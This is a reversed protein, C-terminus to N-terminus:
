LAVKRIKVIVESKAMSGGWAGINDSNMRGGHIGERAKQIMSPSRHGGGMYCFLASPHITETVKLRARQRAGVNDNVIERSQKRTPGIREVEVEDGDKLGLKHARASNIFVATPDYYGCMKDEMLVRNNQTANKQQWSEKGQILYFEDKKEPGSVPIFRPVPHITEYGKWWPSGFYQRAFENVYLEMRTTPTPVKAPPLYEAPVAVVYPENMLKDVSTKGTLKAAKLRRESWSRETLSSTDEMDVEVGLKEAVKRLFWPISKAEGRPAVVPNRAFVYAYVKGDKAQIGSYLIRREHMSAAPIVYDAIDTFDKPSQEDVIILELKDRCLEYIRGANTGTYPTNEATSWVARIEGKEIADIHYWPLARISPSFKGAMVPVADWPSGNYASQINQAPSWKIRDMDVNKETYIPEKPVPIKGPPDSEPWGAGLGERAIGVPPTKFRAWGGQAAFTGLLMNLADGCMYKQMDTSFKESFGNTAWLVAPAQAALEKAIAEIKKPPFPIECIEVVKEPTFAKSSEYLAQLATICAVGNVEFRKGLGLEMDGDGHEPFPATANSSAKWVMFRGTQDLFPRLDDATVLQGANTYKKLYEKNYLDNELVYKVIGLTLAADTGPRIPIWEHHMGATDHFFPDVVVFRCGNKRARQFKAFGGNNKTTGPINQTGSYFLKTNEADIIDPTRTPTGITDVQVNHGGMCVQGHMYSISTGVKKSWYAIQEQDDAQVPCGWWCEFARADGYQSEKKYRAIAAAMADIVEDWTCRVFKGEGRKGVRKLPHLIRDPGYTREMVASMAGPCAKGEYNPLDAWKADVIVGDEVLYQTPCALCLACSGQLWKAGSTATKGAQAFATLKLGGGFAIAAGGIGGLKVFQRRSIQKKM